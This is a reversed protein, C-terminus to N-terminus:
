LSCKQCNRKIFEVILSIFHFRSYIKSNQNKKNFIIFHSYNKTFNSNITIQIQIEIRYNQYFLLNLASFFATLFGFKFSIENM